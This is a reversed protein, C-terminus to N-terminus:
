FKQTILCNVEGNRMQIKLPKFIIFDVVRDDSLIIHFLLHLWRISCFGAVIIIYLKVQVFTHVQVNVIHHEKQSKEFLKKKDKKVTIILQELKISNADKFRYYM